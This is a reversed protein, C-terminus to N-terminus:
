TQGPAMSVNSRAGVERKLTGGKAAPDAPHHGPRDNAKTATVPGLTCVIKARRRGIGLSPEGYGREGQYSPHECDNM